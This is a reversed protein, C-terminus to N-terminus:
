VTTCFLGFYLCHLLGNLDSGIIAHDPSAGTMMYFRGDLYEYAHKPDHEVLKLYAELSMRESPANYEVAM